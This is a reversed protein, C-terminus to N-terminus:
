IHIALWIAPTSTYIVKHIQMKQIHLHEGKKLHLERGDEFLLKGEGEVLVIWEDKESTCWEDSVQGHSTIKEIHINKTQFLTDFQENNVDNTNATFLNKM